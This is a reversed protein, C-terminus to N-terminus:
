EATQRIAAGCGRGFGPRWVAHNLEEGKFKSYGRKEYIDDVLQKSRRGRRGMVEIM